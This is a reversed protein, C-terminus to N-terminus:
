ASQRNRINHCKTTKCCYHQSHAKRQTKDDQHYIM